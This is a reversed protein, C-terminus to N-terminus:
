WLLYFLEVFLVENSQYNMSQYFSYMM